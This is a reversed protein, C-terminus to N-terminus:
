HHMSHEGVKLYPKYDALRRLLQKSEAWIKSKEKENAPFIIYGHPGKREGLVWEGPNVMMMGDSANPKCGIDSFTV